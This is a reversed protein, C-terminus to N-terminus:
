VRCRSRFQQAYGVSRKAMRRDSRALSLFHLQAHLDSRSVHAQAPHRYNSRGTSARLFLTRALYNNFPQLGARMRNQDIALFINNLNGNIFNSAQATARAHTGGPANNEFGPQPIVNAPAVGSRLRTAVADFAQAFSQGSTPDVHVYPVQGFSMSQTLKSAYRGVYGVELLMDAPLERQWTLDFAHNQGAEIQPDVQFSLIEPFLRLVGGSDVGWFPSVPVTRQPVAPIPLATWAWASCASLLILARQTVDLGAPEQPTVRPASVNITQAFAMGLRPIIVNQVLNQRDYILAYGGRLVTKRNGFLLGLLGGEFSPTVVTV